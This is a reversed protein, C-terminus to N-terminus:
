MLVTQTYIYISTHPLTLIRINLSSFDMNRQLLFCPVEYHMWCHILIMLATRFNNISEYLTQFIGEHTFLGGLTSAESFDDESKYSTLVAFLFFELLHKQTWVLMITDM